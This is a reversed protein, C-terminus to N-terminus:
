TARSREALTAPRIRTARTARRPAPHSARTFVPHPTRCADCGRSPTRTGFRPQVTRAYSRIRNGAAARHRAAPAQARVSDLSRSARTSRRGALDLRENSLGDLRDAVRPTTRNRGAARVTGTAVMQADTQFSIRAARPADPRGPRCAAQLVDRQM